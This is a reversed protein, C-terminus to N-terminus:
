IRVHVSVATFVVMTILTAVAMCTSATGMMWKGGKELLDKHEESLLAQLTKGKSFKLEQSRLDVINEVPRCYEVEQM